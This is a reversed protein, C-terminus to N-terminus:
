ETYVWEEFLPTLDCQCHDEALTKFEAGSSVQWQYTQAYDLLFADFVAQGMTEALTQLFIPGRGYVIASYEPGQYEAAPKGIPIEEQSVRNWRNFWTEQYGKKGSEGYEDLFFMGTIYQTLSEDLWPENKQDNGVTNYFWQHGVEHAVTSQLVVFAPTGGFTYEPDYALATIGVVGPYEIGSAGQMPTSAVDFETYPYNGYRKNFDELAASAVNLARRAGEERDALTYSNVGTEGVTKSTKVFEASAALYFDRAPGAAFTTIQKDGDLKHAVEIGSSVLVLDGPASVRVLYFSSDNYTTDSNAPLPGAAWGKDDYAPIMPYFGDLTLVNDIVAFLGYNGGGDTPVDVKFAMHVLINEGPELPSKLSLCAASGQDLYKVEVSENEVKIDSLTVAGGMQNPYLQFCVSDLAVSELNTYQVSEQGSVSTLDDAIEIEIHYVSAGPLQKLTEQEEKILGSAYVSRDDWNSWASEVDSIQPSGQKGFLSTCGSLVLASLFILIIRSLDSKMHVDKLLSYYIFYHSFRLPINFVM